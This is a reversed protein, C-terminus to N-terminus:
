KRKALLALLRDPYDTIIGDVQWNMLRSLGENENVTWPIIKINKEHCFAVLEKTVMPFYCSYIEPVFGLTEFDAKLDKITKFGPQEDLFALTIAPYNQHMHQLVAVDFSQINFKKNPLHAKLDAVVLQCFDAISPQSIGIESATSKIEVNFNPLSLKEKRCFEQVAFIVETLLPKKAPSNQQEPFRPNQLSGCDCKEIDAYLMQYLNFDTEHAIKEGLPSTCIAPNLFPEHSVVVKKDASIVVDLELTNVGLETAKLFAPITNEPLLGRCGRHGQVDLKQNSKQCGMLLFIFVFLAAFKVQRSSQANARIPGM